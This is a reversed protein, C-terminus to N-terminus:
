EDDYSDYESDSSDKNIEKLFSDLLCKDCFPCRNERKLWYYRRHDGIIFYDECYGGDKYTMLCNLHFDHKCPTTVMKKDNEQENPNFPKKCKLCFFLDPFNSRKWEKDIKKRCIPCHEEIKEVNEICKVIWDHLCDKHIYNDCCKTTIFEKSNDWGDLCVICRDDVNHVKKPVNMAISCLYNSNIFLISLLSMCAKKFKM